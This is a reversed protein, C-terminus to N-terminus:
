RTMKLKLISLSHAPCMYDFTPGLDRLTVTRQAVREPQDFSNEDDPSGSTLVLAEGEPHVATAGALAVRCPKAEAFPNVVKVIVEGERERIGTTAYISRGYQERLKEDHKLEGNLFCKIRGGNVEVRIDYWKGTEIRGARWTGLDVRSGKREQMLVDVANGWGGINWLCQNDGNRIAYIIFGEDGSIKRAKLSLTYDSWTTDGAGAISEIVTNRNKLTGGTVDWQDQEQKWGATGGSVDEAFLIQGNKEVRVEKFEAKTSWASVAIGGRLHNWRLASTDAALTVTTPLVRDPRNESFMKFAHYSPTGYVQSTNYVIMNPNWRRDNVNVFTPAYSAMRVLDANRELGVMFAAEGIAARLNGQGPQGLTVAFEGIYIKVSDSRDYSDYRTSQDFFFTPSQYYHEDVMEVGVGPYQKRDQDSIDIDDYNAITTIGPYETKIGSQIFKYAARYDPGNNENGIEVYRVPFPAPHGNAARMAGWRSTVPGMAYELADLADQLYSMLEEKPAVMGGRGQCSMGVNIVYLPAAGLDECLQLYEHFGLGDTARSGWLNWHGPRNAVDGITKKWQIRNELTAGEVVCGGPFRFFSPHLGTLMQALDKRLGNPRNKWTEQPFLSVMDLWVTGASGASLVFRAGPDDATSTLTARFQKWGGTLGSIEQVAYKQGSVSELSATLVGACRPDKRAYLSLQYAAGKRIPIGWYGENAVAARGNGLQLVEFRMSQANAANLPNGTELQIRAAAGGEQLLTWAHLADPRRYREKWGNPNVVTSDDVWHMDEPARNYEFDRNQILEAYLGGDAAHNIDEFFIGYMSPSLAPGPHAADIAIVAAPQGPATLPTLCCMAVLVILWPPTKM